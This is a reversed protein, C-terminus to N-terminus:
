RSIFFFSLPQLHYIPPYLAPLVAPSRRTLAPYVAAKM